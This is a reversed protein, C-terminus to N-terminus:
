YKGQYYVTVFVCMFILILRALSTMTARNLFWFFFVCLGCWDDDVLGSNPM